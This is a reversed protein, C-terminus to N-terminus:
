LVMTVSHVMDREQAVILTGYLNSVVWTLTRSGFVCVNSVMEQSIIAYLPIDNNRM